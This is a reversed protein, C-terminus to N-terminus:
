PADAFLAIKRNAGYSMLTAHLSPSVEVILELDAANIKFIDDIVKPLRAIEIAAKIRDKAAIAEEYRPHATGRPASHPAPQAAGNPAPRPPPASAPKQPTGTLVGRLKAMERDPIVYSNGKAEIEVWPTDLDYLYRGIGWRVAARKFSDSFAGKEAEVDSAGAGDGRWLWEDGIKIGIDCALKEGGCHHHRTQWFVGCVEDLRDQVDRADIYALAIARTKGSNTPGIRWSIVEPPFPASLRAAIDDAV